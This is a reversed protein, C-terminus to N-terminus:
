PRYGAATRRPYALRPPSPVFSLVLVLTATGLTSLFRFTTPEGFELETVLLFLAIVTNVFRFWPAWLAQIANAAILIGLVLTDFGASSGHPFLLTSAVLWLGLAVTVWRAWRTRAFREHEM